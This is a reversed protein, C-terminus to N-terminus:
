WGNEFDRVFESIMMSCPSQTKVSASSSKFDSILLSLMLHEFHLSEIFNPRVNTTNELKEVGVVMTPEEFDGSFNYIQIGDFGGM